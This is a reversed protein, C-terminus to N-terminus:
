KVGPYAELATPSGIPKLTLGKQFAKVTFGNTGLNHNQPELIPRWRELIAEPARYRSGLAKLELTAELVGPHVKIARPNADIAGPHDHTAGPHPRLNRYLVKVEGPNAEM